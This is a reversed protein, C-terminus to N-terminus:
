SIYAHARAWELWAKRIQESNGWADEPVPNLGTIKELLISWFGDEKQYEEFICPLMPYGIKVMLQFANNNEIDSIDSSFKVHPDNQWSSKLVDFIQSYSVQPPITANAQKPGRLEVYDFKPKRSMEKVSRAWHRVRVSQLFRRSATKPKKGAILMDFTM